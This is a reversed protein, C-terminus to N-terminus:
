PSPDKDCAKNSLVYDWQAAATSEVHMCVNTDHVGGRLECPCREVVNMGNILSQPTNVKASLDSLDSQLLLFPSFFIIFSFFDVEGWGEFAM